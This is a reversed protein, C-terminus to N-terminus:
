YCQGRIYKSARVYKRGFYNNDIFNAVDHQNIFYKANTANTLDEYQTQTNQLQDEASQTEKQETDNSSEETQSIGLLDVVRISYGNLANYVYQRLTDMNDIDINENTYINNLIKWLTNTLKDFEEKLDELSQQNFEYDEWTFINNDSELNFAFLGMNPIAPIPVLSLEMIRHDNKDLNLGMSVSTVIGNKVKEAATKAKIVVNDLFLGLKGILQSAKPNPLDESTIVKTYARGDVSGVTNEVTKQHDTCVPVVIGNELAQNTYDAITNLRESSFFHPVGNSDKFEGEVAVLAKKVVIGDDEPLENFNASNIFGTYFRKVSM